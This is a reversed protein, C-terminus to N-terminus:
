NLSANRFPCLFLAAAEQSGEVSLDASPEEEPPGPGGRASEEAWEMAATFLFLWRSITEDEAVQESRLLRPLERRLRSVPMTFRSALIREVNELESTITQESEECAIIEHPNYDMAKSGEVVLNKDFKGEAGETKM